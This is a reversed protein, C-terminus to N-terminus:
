LTRGRLDVDAWRLGCLEGERMGTCLAMLVALNFPTEAAADLYTLLARGRRDDLANPMPAELKPPKASVLLNEPILDAQVTHECASKPLM